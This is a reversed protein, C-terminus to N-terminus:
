RFNKVVVIGANDEDLQSYLISKRDPSIALGRSEGDLVSISTRRGTAFDFFELIPKPSSRSNVFYM